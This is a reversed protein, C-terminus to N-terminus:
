KDGKDLACAAKWNQGLWPHGLAEAQEALAWVQDRVAVIPDPAPAGRCADLFRGWDFVGQPPVGPDTKGDQKGSETDQHGVLGAAAETMVRELPFGYQEAWRRCAEAAAAYQFDSIPTSITPQAIELGLFAQNATKAHYGIATDHLCRAVESPGVVLHASVGSQPNQFWAVTSRYDEELSGSGGRTTHVVVGRTQARPGVAFNGPAAYQVVTPVSLTVDGNAGGGAPPLWDTIVREVATGAADVSTPLTPSQDWRWAFYLAVAVRAESACWDLFPVLEAGAWAEVDVTNGAGFNLETVVCRGTTNALYWEVIERMQACSGYAHVAHDGASRVWPHWDGSPSPPMALLHGPYRSAARVADEFAVYEAPGGTWGELALNLENGVQAWSAGADIAEDCRAALWAPDPHGTFYPRDIWVAGANAWAVGHAFGGDDWDDQKSVTGVAPCAPADGDAASLVVFGQALTM